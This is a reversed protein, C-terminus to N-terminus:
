KPITIERYGRKLLVNKLEKEIIGSIAIESYSGYAIDPLGINKVMHLWDIVYDPRRFVDIYRDGADFIIKGIRKEMNLLIKQLTLYADMFYDPYEPVDDDIDQFKQTRSIPQPEEDVYEAATRPGVLQSLRTISPRYIKEIPM